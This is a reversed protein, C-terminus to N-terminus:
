ARIISDRKKGPLKEVKRHSSKRARKRHLCRSLSLWRPTSWFPLLFVFTVLSREFSCSEFLVKVSICKNYLVKKKKMMTFGVDLFETRVSTFMCLFWDIDSGSTAVRVLRPFVNEHKRNTSFKM